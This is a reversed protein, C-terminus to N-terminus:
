YWNFVTAVAGDDMTILLDNGQKHDSNKKRLNEVQHKRLTINHGKYNVSFM